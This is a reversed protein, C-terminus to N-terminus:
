ARKRGKKKQKQHDAEVAVEIPDVEMLQPEPQIVPAADFLEPAPNAEQEATEPPDQPNPVRVVTMTGDGYDALYVGHDRQMEVLLAAERKVASSHGPNCRIKRHLDYVNGMDVEAQQIHWPWNEAGVVFDGPVVPGGMTTLRRLAIFRHM